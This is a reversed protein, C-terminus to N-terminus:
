LHRRAAVLWGVLYSLLAMLFAGDSKLLNWGTAKFLALAAFLLFILLIGAVKMAAAEIMRYMEDQRRSFVVMLWLAVGFAAIPVMALAVRQAVSLDAETVIRSDLMGNAFGALGSLVMAAVVLRKDRTKLSSWKIWMGGWTIEAM